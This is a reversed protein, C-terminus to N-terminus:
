DCLCQTLQSKCKKAREYFATVQEMNSPGWDQYKVVEENKGYEHLQPIDAEQIHRIILHKTEFIIKV